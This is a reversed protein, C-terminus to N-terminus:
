ILISVPATKFFFLQFPPPCSSLVLRMKDTLRPWDSLLAPASRELTNPTSNQVPDVFLLSKFLNWIRKTVSEACLLYLFAAQTSEYHVSICRRLNWKYIFM